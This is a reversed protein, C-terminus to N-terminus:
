KIKSVYSLLKDFDLLERVLKRALVVSHSFVSISKVKGSKNVYRLKYLRSTKQVGKGRNLMHRM